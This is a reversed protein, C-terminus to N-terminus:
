RQMILVNFPACLGKLHDFDFSKIIATFAM